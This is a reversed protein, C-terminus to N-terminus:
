PKLKAEFGARWQTVQSSLRAPCIRSIRFLLLPSRGRLARACCPFRGLGVTSALAIALGSPSQWARHAASTPGRKRGGEHKALPPAKGEVHDVQGRRAATASLPLETANPFGHSVLAWPYRWAHPLQQM